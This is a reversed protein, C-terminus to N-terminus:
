SLQCGVHDWMWSSGAGGVGGWGGGRGGCVYLSENASGGPVKPGHSMRGGLGGGSLYFVFFHAEWLRWSVYFVHLHAVGSGWGGGGRCMRTLGLEYRGLLVESLGRKM